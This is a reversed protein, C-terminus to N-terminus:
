QKGRLHQRILQPLWALAVLVGLAIIIDWVVGINGEIAKRGAYGLYAYVAIRPAICIVTPVLFQSLSLPTLGLTYNLPTFPFVPLLRLFFVTRWGGNGVEDRIRLLNAPLRPTIWNALLHRSTLFSLAAGLTAGSLDLLSGYVPGFLVGGVICFAMSSIFIQQALVYAILFLLPTYPTGNLWVLLTHETETLEDAAVAPIAWLLLLAM